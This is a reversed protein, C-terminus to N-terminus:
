LGKPVSTANLAVQANSIRRVTKAVTEFDAGTAAM